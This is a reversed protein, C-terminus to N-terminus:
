GSRVQMKRARSLHYPPDFLFCLFCFAVVVKVFFLLPLLLLLLLLLCCCCVVFLLLLCCCCVVFDQSEWDRTGVTWFTKGQGWFHNPVKGTLLFALHIEDGQAATLWQSPAQYCEVRWRAATEFENPAGEHLRRGTLFYDWTKPKSVKPKINKQSSQSTVFTKELNQTTKQKKCSSMMLTKNHIKQDMSNNITWNFKDMLNTCQIYPM